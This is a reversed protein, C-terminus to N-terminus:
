GEPQVSLVSRLATLSAIEVLEPRDEPRTRGSRNLWVAGLGAAIAGDVDRSLSDGVMITARAAVRLLSRAHTFPAAAPKAIGLDASVVVADFYDSLGSAALKDRQLCSAGNTVLALAYSERLESLTAVVDDFVEYRARAPARRSLWRRLM